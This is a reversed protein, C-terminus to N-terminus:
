RSEFLAQFGRDRRVSRHELGGARASGRRGSARVRAGKRPPSQARAEAPVPPIEAGLRKLAADIHAREEQTAHLGRVGTRVALFVLCAREIESLEVRRELRVRPLRYRLLTMDGQRVLALGEIEGHAGSLQRVVGRIMSARARARRVEPERHLAFMRNRAYMAPVLAM